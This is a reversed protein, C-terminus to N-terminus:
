GLGYDETFYRSLDVMYGRRSDMARVLYVFFHMLAHQTFLLTDLTFAKRIVCAQDIVCLGNPRLDDHIEAVVEVFARQVSEPEKWDSKFAFLYARPRLVHEEPIAGIVNGSIAIAARRPLTRVSQISNVADRLEPKTLTTKVSVVAHVAEVPVLSWAHADVFAPTNMRDHIIVDIQGSEAGGTAVVKGTSVTYRQPLHRKLFEALVLENNRGKEGQHSMQDSIDEIESLMRKTIGAYHRQM